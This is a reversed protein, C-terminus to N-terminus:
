RFDEIRKEGSAYLEFNESFDPPADIKIKLLKSFISPEKPLAKAQDTKKILNYIENIKEDSLNEIEAHLLERTTM